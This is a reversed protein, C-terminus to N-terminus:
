DPVLIEQNPRNRIDGLGRGSSFTLGGCYFVSYNSVTKNNIEPFGALNIYKTDQEFIGEWFCCSILGTYIKHRITLDLMMAVIKGLSYHTYSQSTNPSVIVYSELSIM